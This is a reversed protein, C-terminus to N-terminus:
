GREGCVSLPFKNEGGQKCVLAYFGGYCIRLKVAQRKVPAIVSVLFRSLVILLAYELSRNKEINDVDVLDAQLSVSVVM